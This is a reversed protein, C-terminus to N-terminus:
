RCRTAVGSAVASARIDHTSTTPRLSMLAAPPQNGSKRWRLRGQGDREEYVYQQLWVLRLTDVAPIHRLDQPAAEDYILALLYWGDAGIVEALAERKEQSRPLRFSTFRAGYCETWEPLAVQMLWEPHTKALENLAHLM